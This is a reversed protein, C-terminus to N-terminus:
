FDENEYGSKELDPDIGLVKCVQEWLNWACSDCYDRRHQYHVCQEFDLLVELEHHLQNSEPDDNCITHCSDCEIVEDLERDVLNGRIPVIRMFAYRAM